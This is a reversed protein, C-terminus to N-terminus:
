LFFKTPILNLPRSEIGLEREVQKAFSHNFRGGFCTLVTRPRCAKVFDMLQDFDAHDSLAFNKNKKEWLAWGSVLTPEFEPYNLLNANKPAVFVFENSSAIESAEESQAHTFKLHHGKANYIENMQAARYHVVVPLNSHMNFAKTVEQANGLSDTKFAPIKGSKITKEAWQVMEDAVTEREPFKFGKSGFTSEIILVDCLVPQAGKLTLSDKFQLDGTYVVCGEPTVIEFLTSGLVHGANHSVVKLDDVETADGTALLQWSEVRKGHTEVIEKTEQTSVKICDRFGFGSSHDYHAHSVFVKSYFHNNKHPDFVLKTQCYEVSIGGNWEVTLPMSGVSLSNSVAEFPLFPKEM